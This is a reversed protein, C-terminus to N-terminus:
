VRDTDRATGKKYPPNCCLILQLVMFKVLYFNDIIIVIRSSWWGGHAFTNTQKQTTRILAKRFLNLYYLIM